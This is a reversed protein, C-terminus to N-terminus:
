GQLIDPFKDETTANQENLWEVFINTAWLNNRKTIPPVYRNRAQDLEKPTVFRGSIGVENLPKSLSPTEHATFLTTKEANIWCATAIDRITACKRSKTYVFDMAAVITADSVHDMIAANAPTLMATSLPEYVGNEQQLSPLPTAPEPLSKKTALNRPIQTNM